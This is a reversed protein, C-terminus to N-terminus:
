HLSSSLIETLELPKYDLAECSVNFYRPDPLSQSHVHGHINLRYGWDLQSPHIPCHTMIWGEQKNTVMGALSNVWKLLEQNHSAKPLDHNGLVVKKFGKLLGLKAYDARKEMSIDGLIWVTDGKRVRQNWNQIILEDHREVSEFGRYLAMKQHGLHLDSIVWIKASM